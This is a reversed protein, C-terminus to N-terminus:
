CKTQTLVAISNYFFFTFSSTLRFGIEERSIMFKHYRIEHELNEKRKNSVGM